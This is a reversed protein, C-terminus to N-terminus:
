FLEFMHRSGRTMILNWTLIICLTKLLKHATPLQNEKISDDTPENDKM